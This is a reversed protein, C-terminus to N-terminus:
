PNSIKPTWADYDFDDERAWGTVAYGNVHYTHSGDIVLHYLPTEPPLSYQELTTVPRGGEISKLHAGVEMTKVRGPMLGHMKMMAPGDPGIVLHSKGYYHGDVVAPDVAYILKDVSIHPHHSTTDHEGNIKFMVSSGVTVRHLAIVTNIEGFAGTVTDGIAVEEIPKTSGDAMNVPAGKLFCGTVGQVTKIGLANSSVVGFTIGLGDGVVTFTAGNNSVSNVVAGTSYVAVNYSTAYPDPTWNVTIICSPGVLNINTININTIGAPPQVAPSEQYIGNDVFRLSGLRRKVLTSQDTGQNPGQEPGVPNMMKFSALVRSQRHLTRVLYSTDNVPM